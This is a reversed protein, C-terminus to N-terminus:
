LPTSSATQKEKEAQMALRAQRRVYYIRQLATFNGLIALVWLAVMPINFVLCPILVLYRELRSLLGIKAEYGLAEARAKVYSVLISAAAAIYVLIAGTPNGHQVFYVLLGGLLFLESYRDTVSDVFAGLSTVEGRMRAMTGDVADLPALILVVIGGWTIYGLGILVAGAINGILGLLTVSNPKLGVNILFRAIADIVGKFLRRMKDTFTLREAKIEVNEM